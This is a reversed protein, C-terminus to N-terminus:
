SNANQQLIVKLQGDLYNKITEAHCREPHCWCGLKIDIRSLDSLLLKLTHMFQVRTPRKWAKARPLRREQAIAEAVSAPEEGRLVRWFYSEYADCVADRHAESTLDFPNGLVSSRDVKVTNWYRTVGRINIIEIQSM